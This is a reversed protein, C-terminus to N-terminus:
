ASILITPNAEILQRMIRLSWDASMMKTSPPFFGDTLELGRPDRFLPTQIPHVPHSIMLKEVLTPWNLPDSNFTMTMPKGSKSNLSKRAPDEITMVRVGDIRVTIKVMSRTIRITFDFDSNGPDDSEGFRM